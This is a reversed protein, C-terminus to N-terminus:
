TSAARAGGRPGHQLRQQRALARHPPTIMHVLRTVHNLLHPWRAKQQRRCLRDRRDRDQHGGHSRLVQARHQHRRHHRDRRSQRRGERQGAYRRHRPLRRGHGRGLPETRVEAKAEPSAEENADKGPPTPKYRLAANPLRLVDKVERTKVTVTATMGPRLKMEPNDVDVVALYTVVGQVSNPNYRVQSVSGQFAEGAFADVTAEAPMGEKLKGM